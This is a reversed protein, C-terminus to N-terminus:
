ITQLQTALNLPKGVAFQPQAGESAHDNVVLGTAIGVRVQREAGDRSLGDTAEIMALGARVAREAADERAEPYGFFALVGDSTHSAVHGGCVTIAATCRERYSRMMSGLEEPDDPQEGRTGAFDCSLVTLHRREPSIAPASSPAPEAPQPVPLDVPSGQPRGPAASPTSDLRSVEVAFLYGRRQVTRLLQQANDSLARRIDRVCQTISDDSVFVGPWVAAMIADRDLLRGANEVLLCLLAYSKPRLALEAGDPALLAGRQVDLVFRDFRYGVPRPKEADMGSFGM